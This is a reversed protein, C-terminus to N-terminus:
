SDSQDNFRTLIFDADATTFFAKAGVMDKLQRHAAIMYAGSPHVRQSPIGQSRRRAMLRM